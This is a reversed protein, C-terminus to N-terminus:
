TEAEVDFLHSIRQEDPPNTCLSVGVGAILSAGMCWVIPDFGLPQYAGFEGRKYYNFAYLGVVPIMGSLMAAIVGPATARRWYAAMIAPTVFSTAGVTGSFIVMKQLYAIPSWNAAIGIVGVVIMCLYSMRRLERQSAGPNVFRQYIDRVMGSAIVVLYSSVTAMVAGFPAALILGSLFAGGPIKGTTLTALRPVIEDSATGLDPLLARGCICIIILPVYICLNYSGLLFISRRITQTDQSAMVRVMGAPSGMGSFVWVFFYSIAVGFPLFDGATGRPGPGTVLGGPQSFVGNRIAGNSFLATRWALKDEGASPHEPTMALLVRRTGGQEDLKRGAGFYDIAKNTLPDSFPAAATETELEALSEPLRNDHAVAYHRIAQDLRHMERTAMERATLVKTMEAPDLEHSITNVEWQIRSTAEPLGSVALISLPLLIMVGIWMIISQFLDTWVAALFGGILSYAVVAITFAVLGLRFLWDAQGAFSSIKQKYLAADDPALVEGLRNELDLATDFGEGVLGADQIAQIVSAPAIAERALKDLVEQSIVYPRVDDALALTGQGPWCVKIVIAGAKYQAIMMFMMAFLLILSATLGVAPSQFRERFMDPVTLAGTRRSLHAFRKALISFGTLPVVMYSGIWLAVVWGNSYVYSPFGMFTGGSQVTATLALAWSGLGRNGLFYGKMFSGGREVVRQAVTGLWVSAAILLVISLLPGYTSLDPM